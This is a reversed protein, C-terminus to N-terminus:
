VIRYTHKCTFITVAALLCSGYLFLPCLGTVCVCVCVCARVCMVRNACTRWYSTEFDTASNPTFIWAPRLKYHKKPRWFSNSTELSNGLLEKTKRGFIFTLQINFQLYLQIFFSAFREHVLGSREGMSALL